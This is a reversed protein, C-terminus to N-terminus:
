DEEYFRGGHEWSLRLRVVGEAGHRNKAVRLEMPVWGQSRAKEAAEPKSLVKGDDGVPVLLLVSDADQEKSSANKLGYHTVGDRQAARNIHSVALVAVHHDQALAKLGGTIAAYKEVETRGDARIMEMHDLIIVMVQHAHHYRRAEAVLSNMHIAAVDCLFLPMESMRQVSNWVREREGTLISGRTAVAVPDVMADAFVMRRGVESASMETTFALVPHGHSAIYRAVNQVFLSKGAGTDAGIVCVRGPVLGGIFHDLKKIGTSLGPLKRPDDMWEAINGAVTDGIVKSATVTQEKRNAGSDLLRGSMRDLLEGPEVGPVLAAQSMEYGVTAIRRLDSSRKVQEAYWRAGVQTPLQHITDALFTTGGCETLRSPHGAAQGALDIERAVSIQNVHEGRAALAWVAEAVWRNPASFDAPKVVEMCENMALVDIMCCAIVCQEAEDDVLASAAYEAPRM